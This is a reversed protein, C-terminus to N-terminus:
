KLNVCDDCFVKKELLELIKEREESGNTRLRLFPLEYAQMIDDKLKDRKSQLSREQHFAVGDVEILLRPKKDIKSYILFDVHTNPHMAYKKEEESLLNTDRLLMKLPIHMRVDLYGFDKLIEVILAYLLRESDYQSVREHQSLFAKRRDSYFQYLFDFVSFIKSEHVEFNNYQIYGALDGLNGQELLTEDDNVVVILQKVARSIAVNLRSSDDIFSSNKNNVTSLIIVDMEQGQFSDVTAVKVNKGKLATKIAQVQDRYPAIIGVSGNDLNLSFRPIIEKVIMDIQRQNTKGRQHNGKVAKFLVIPDKGEDKTMVVLQNDYFKKNCFDIIKPHCRYHEKLLTKPITPYVKLISSLFSHEDYRYIKPIAFCQAIRVVQDRIDSSIINPLQKLDGVIVAEKACQLALSGTCLDVQSAEDMILLDYSVSQGLTGFVSHTTSLILPYDGIFDRASTFLEKIEYKRRKKNHFKEYLNAKFIDLSIRSAEQMKESFNFHKLEQELTDVESYIEERKLKYFVRQINAIILDIGEFFNTYFIKYFMRRKHKWFILSYLLYFIKIKTFSHQKNKLGEFENLLEVAEKSTSIKEIYQISENSKLSDFYLLFHKEELILSSYEGKMLQLQNQMSLKKDIDACLKQLRKGLETWQPNKWKEFTPMEKQNAIFHEKNEKSGLKACFFDFGYKELKEEVNAIASNNNSVVAVSCGRILANAIINLITQTKGTGPPGEVVSLSNDMALEVAQKQSINFGFPYILPFNHKKRDKQPMKTNCFYEFLNKPYEIKSYYFSLQNVSKADEKATKQEGVIQAIKKLYNLMRAM